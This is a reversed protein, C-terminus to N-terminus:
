ARINVASGRPRPKRNAIKEADAKELARVENDLRRFDEEIQRQRVRQLQEARAQDTRREAQRRINIRRLAAAENESKRRASDATAAQQARVQDTRRNQDEIPAVEPM